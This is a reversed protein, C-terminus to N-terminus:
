IARSDPWPTVIMPCLRPPTSPRAIAAALGAFTRWTTASPEGIRSPHVPTCSRIRGANCAIWDKQIVNESSDTLQPVDSHEHANTAVTNAGVGPFLRKLAM